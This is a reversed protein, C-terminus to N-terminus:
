WASLAQCIFTSYVSLFFFWIERMQGAAGRSLIQIFDSMTTSDQVYVVTGNKILQNLPRFETPSLFKSTRCQCLGDGNICRQEVACRHRRYSPTIKKQIYFCSTYNIVPVPKSPSKFWWGYWTLFVVYDILVITYVTSLGFAAIFMRAAAVVALWSIICM